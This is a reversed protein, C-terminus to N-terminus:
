SVKILADEMRLKSHEFVESLDMNLYEFILYIKKNVSVIDLLQVVAPHNLSKLVSIERIATSPVGETDSCLIVIVLITVNFIYM